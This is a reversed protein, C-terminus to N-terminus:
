FRVEWGFYGGQYIVSKLDFDGQDSVIDWSDSQDVSTAVDNLWLLFYGGRISSHRGLHISAGLDLESVSTVRDDDVFLDHNQAVASVRVDHHYLGTKTTADFDFCQNRFLSWGGGVQCGI